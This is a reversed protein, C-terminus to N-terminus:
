IFFYKVDTRARKIVREVVDNSPPIAYECAVGFGV